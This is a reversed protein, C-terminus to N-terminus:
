ILTMSVLAAVSDVQMKQFLRARHKAVTKESIALKSAIHRSSDGNILLDLVERERQSLTALRDDVVRRKGQEVRYLADREIAEQVRSLLAQRSFPKEIFDVAGNTMAQVAMPVNGYGTIVIIPLRAGDTLLRDQLGLGSLGPMRVDVILCRAPGPDDRYHNLFDESSAFTEVNLGTSTLLLQLSERVQPDDDVVYVTPQSM